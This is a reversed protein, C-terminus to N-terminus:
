MRVACNDMRMPDTFKYSIEEKFSSNTVGTRTYGYPIMVTNAISQIEEDLLPRNFYQVRAIQAEFGQASTNVNAIKPIVHAVNDSMFVRGQYSVTEMPAGNIYVTINTIDTKIDSGETTPVSVEDFVFMVNTMNMGNQTVNFYKSVASFRVNNKLVDCSATIPDVSRCNRNTLDDVFNPGTEPRTQNFEVQFYVRTDNDTVQGGGSKEIILWILPCKKVIISEGNKHYASLPCTVTEPTTPKNIVYNSFTTEDFTILQKTTDGRLLLPIKMTELNAINQFKFGLYMSFTFGVKDGPRYMRSSDFSLLKPDPTTNGLLSIADEQLVQGVSNIDLKMVETKFPENSKWVIVVLVMLLILSVVILFKTIYTEKNMCEFATFVGVLILAILISFSTYFGLTNNQKRTVYVTQLMMLFMILIFICSAVLTGLALYGNSEM